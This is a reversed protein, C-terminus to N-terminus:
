HIQEIRKVNTVREARWLTPQYRIRLNQNHHALYYHNAHELHFTDKEFHVKWSTSDQAKSTAYVYWTSAALYLKTANPNNYPLIRLKVDNSDPIPEFYVNSANHPSLHIPANKRYWRKAMSIYAPQGSSRELHFHYPTHFHLHHDLISDQSSTFSICLLLLLVLLM